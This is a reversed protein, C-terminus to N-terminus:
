SQGYIEETKEIMKSLTFLKKARAKANKGLMAALSKSSAVRMIADSLEKPSNPHVLLGSKGHLVLEPVGGVYTAIIPIGHQMAEIVSYPLGEQLSPFVFLDCGSLWGSIQAGNNWGAFIVSEELKEKCVLRAIEDQLRGDGIFVLKFQFGRSKLDACAAILSAHGKYPEFVATFCMVFDQKDIGNKQRIATASKKTMSADPWSPGTYVTRLKGKEIGRLSNLMGSAYNCNPLFADTCRATVADLVREVLPVRRKAPTSLVSFFVRRGALKAALAASHCPMAGPYGGNVIHVPGSKKHALHALIILANPIYFAYRLPVALLKIATKAIQPLPAGQVSALFPHVSFLWVAKRSVGQSLQEDMRSCFEPDANHLLRVSYGCRCLSNCLDFLTKEMGGHQFSEAFITIQKRKNEEKM